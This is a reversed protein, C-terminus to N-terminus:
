KWCEVVLTWKRAEDALDATSKSGFSFVSGSRYEVKHTDLFTRLTQGSVAFNVNQGVSGTAKAMKSDSLKMSVVGVIEGKKNLVPSGSSGPQIPATIQIQNTNNGLGTLASVVGPTMNGGSSLLSNLPFGFVVIDEGQRLKAPESAVAASVAVTGSIQLLALDNVVDSTIVKVAGERGEARVEACGNIVHHNTISQGAKNIFFATGTGSKALTGQTSAQKVGEANSSERVITQYPKWNSALRQAEAIENPSMRAAATDRNTGADTNGQSSALNSWAYALVLDAAVGEGRLYAVGLNQQAHANGSSAAKQYWTVAKADDKPTGEGNSYMDGVFAQAEFVYDLTFILDVASGPKLSEPDGLRAVAEFLKFARAADKTAGDGTRYVIALNYKAYALGQSAAKEWWTAAASPNKDATCSTWQIKGHIKGLAIPNGAPAPANGCTSPDLPAGTYLLYGLKAQSDAHGLEAAKEFYSFSKWPDPQAGGGEAYLEGLRHLTEGHNQEAAKEFWHLATAQNKERKKPKLDSFGRPDYLKGLRYQAEANGQKAAKEYWDGAQDLDILPDEAGDYIREDRGWNKGEEFATGVELMAIVDGAQAKATLGDLKRQRLQQLNPEASAEKGPPKDGCGAVLMALIIALFRMSRNM